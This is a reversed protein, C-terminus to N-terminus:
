NNQLSTPSLQAPPAASPHNDEPSSHDITTTTTSGTMYRKGANSTASGPAPTLWEAAMTRHYREVKGNTQPRYLAPASTGPRRDPWRPRLAWSRYCSGNDTLVRRIRRIGHRRFWKVARQWFGAATAGREDGLEETYTLRTYDDTAPPYVYCARQRCAAKDQASGRGHIYRRWRPDPRGEEVDVHVM